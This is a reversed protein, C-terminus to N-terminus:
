RLERESLNELVKLFEEEMLNKRVFTRSMAPFLTSTLLDLAELLYKNNWFFCISKLVFPVEHSECATKNIKKKRMM